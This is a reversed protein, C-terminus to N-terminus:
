GTPWLPCTAPGSANPWWGPHETSTPPTPLTRASAPRGGIDGPWTAVPHRYRSGRQRATMGATLGYHSRPLSLQCRGRRPTRDARPILRPTPLAATVRGGRLGRGTMGLQPRSSAGIEESKPSTLLASSTAPALGEM